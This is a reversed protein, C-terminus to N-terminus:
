PQHRGTGPLKEKVKEMMGKDEHERGYGTQQGAGFGTQKQGTGCGGTESTHSGPMKENIKDMMGKEDHGCGATKQGTGYGAGTDTTGTHSGPVKEKVKDMMNKDHEDRGRHLQQHGMGGTALTEDDDTRKPARPNGFEDTNRATGWVDQQDAM